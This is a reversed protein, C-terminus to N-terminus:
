YNSFGDLITILVLFENEPASKRCIICLCYEIGRGTDGKHKSQPHFGISCMKLLM